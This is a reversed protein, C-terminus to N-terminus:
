ARLPANKPPPDKLLPQGLGALSTTVDMAGFRIFDYPKTVLMAGFKMFECPKTLVGAWGYYM